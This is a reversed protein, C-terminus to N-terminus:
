PSEDLSTDRRAAACSISAATGIGPEESMPGPWRHATTPADPLPVNPLRGQPHQWGRAGSPDSRRDRLLAPHGVRAGRPEGQPDARRGPRQLFPVFGPVRRRALWIDKGPEGKLERVLGAADESVLTVDEHPSEQMTTSFVYQKLTPYPNSVGVELGPEYTNRGMLVADFHKNPGRVELAERLHGPCTEPFSEFLEAFYDRDDVFADISGDEAAIFGDVTCAVFYKLERMELRGRRIGVAAASTAASFPAIGNARKPAVRAGGHGGGSTLRKNM